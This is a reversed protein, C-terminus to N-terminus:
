INGDEFLNNDASDLEKRLIEMKNWNETKIEELEEICSEEFLGNYILDLRMRLLQLYKEILSCLEYEEDDLLDFKFAQMNWDDETYFRIIDSEKIKQNNLIGLSLIISKICFREPDSGLARINNTLDQCLKFKMKKWNKENRM